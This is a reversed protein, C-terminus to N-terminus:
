RQKGTPWRQGLKWGHGLRKASRIKDRGNQLHQEIEFCCCCRCSCDHVCSISKTKQIVRRPSRGVDPWGWGLEGAEDTSGPRGTENYLLEHSKTVTEFCRRWRSLANCVLPLGLPLNDQQMGTLLRDSSRTPALPCWGARSIVGACFLIPALFWM